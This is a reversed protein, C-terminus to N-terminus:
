RTAIRSKFHKNKNVTLQMPRGKSNHLETDIMVWSEPYKKDKSTQLNQLKDVAAHVTIVSNGIGSRYLADGTM